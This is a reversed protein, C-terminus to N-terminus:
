LHRLAVLIFYAYYCCRSAQIYHEGYLPEAHKCELHPMVGWSVAKHLRALFVSCMWLPVPKLHIGLIHCHPSSFLNWYNHLIHASTGVISTTISVSSNTDTCVLLSTTGAKGSAESSLVNLSHRFLAPACSCAAVVRVLTCEVSGM